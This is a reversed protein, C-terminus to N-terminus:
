GRFKEAEIKLSSVESRLGDYVIDILALSFNPDVYADEGTWKRVCPSSVTNVHRCQKACEYLHEYFRDVDLANEVKRKSRALVLVQYDLEGLKDVALHVSTTIITAVTVAIAPAAVQISVKLGNRPGVRFRVNLNRQSSDM